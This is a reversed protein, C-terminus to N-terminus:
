SREKRVHMLFSTSKTGKAQSSSEISDEFLMHVKIIRAQVSIFNVKGFVM